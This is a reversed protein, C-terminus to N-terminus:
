FGNPALQIKIEDGRNLADFSAQAEDLKRVSSILIQDPVVGTSVAHLGARFDAMSYGVSARVMVQKRTWSRADISVRGQSTAMLIVTGGIRVVRVAQEAMGPAGSCEVVLSRDSLDGDELDAVSPFTAAAGLMLATKAREARPEVVVVLVGRAALAITMMLGIPGAGIVVASTGPATRALSLGHLAVAYPEALAAQAASVHEPVIVCNGAPAVLVEAYGGNSGLGLHTTWQNPCAEPEERQCSSCTSCPISPKVIVRQGIKLDVVGPGCSRIVGCIEHGPILGFSEPREPLHLDTGCIGCREVTVLVEGDGAVPTPVEVVRLGEEGVVVAKM